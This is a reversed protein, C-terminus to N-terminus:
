SLKRQYRVWLLRLSGIDGFFNKNLPYIKYDKKLYKFVSFSLEDSIEILIDYLTSNDNIILCQNKM